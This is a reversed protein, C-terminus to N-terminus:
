HTLVGQVKGPPTADVSGFAIPYGASANGASDVVYLYKGDLTSFSGQNVTFSISSDSWASAVQIESHHAASNDPWTVSPSDSIFVHASTNDIYVQDIYENHSSTVDGSVQGILIWRRDNGQGARNVAINISRTLTMGDMMMLHSGDTGGLNTPYDMYFEFHEWKQMSPVDNYSIPFFLSSNNIRGGNAAFAVSWATNIMMNDGSTYLSNISGTSSGQVSMAVNGDATSGSQYIRLFKSNNGSGLTMDQTPNDRYMWFSIYLKDEPVPHNLRVTDYPYKADYTLKYSSEPTSARPNINSLSPSGSKSWGGGIAGTSWNNASNSNDFSSILPAAQAKSGFGSGTITIPQGNTFTGSTSSIGANVSLPMFFFLILFSVFINKTNM